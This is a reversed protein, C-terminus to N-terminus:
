WYALVNKRNRNAPSVATQYPHLALGSATSAPATEAIVFEYLIGYKGNFQSLVLASIREHLLM